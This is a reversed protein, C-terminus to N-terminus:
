QRADGLPEILGPKDMSPKNVERGVPWTLMEGAYPVLLERGGSELWNDYNEPDIIVPMRGHIPAMTGNATTTIITCSDLSKDPSDWHDWLGAFAFLERDALRIYYPQKDGKEGQWEYFGSAPILCRQKKFAGRFFPKDAVTEARANIPKFKDDRAWHPIFGWHATIAQRAGDHLRIIPIDSAPTVNYSQRFQCSDILAFHEALSAEDNLLSFRGCM